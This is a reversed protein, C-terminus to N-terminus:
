SSVYIVKFNSKQGLYPSLRRSAIAVKAGLQSFKTAMGKGLGTGGGSIFVVKGDFSGAPLMTAKNAPFKSAQPLRTYGESGRVSASTSLKAATRGAHCALKSVQSAPSSLMIVVRVELPLTWLGLGFEVSACACDFRKRHIERFM